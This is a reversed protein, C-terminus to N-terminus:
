KNHKVNEMLAQLRQELRCMRDDLDGLMIEFNKNMEQQTWKNQLQAAAQDWKADLEETLAEINFNENKM